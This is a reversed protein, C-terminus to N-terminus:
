AKNVEYIRAKQQRGKVQLAECETCRIHDPMRGKNARQIHDYTAQSIIIQGGSANEELRKCLNITDGIASFERRNLSGVNGLTAEGTHIGIRYFHPEPKIGLEAYFAMFAERIGLAAEVARQAHDAMPNLQTNFLAMVVNGMYKDVVGKHAHISGTARSHYQNLQQMVEQPRYDAPFSKISRVDAFVCTVERKEGGLALQSITDINDVMEPPLYRRMMALTEESAKQETTDDIVVAVGSIGDPETRLPSFKINLAIRGREPIELEAEVAQNDERNRVTILHTDLDASVGPLAATLRQGIAAAASKNLIKEAARNFLTIIHKADTTMVGSGISAFVNDMLNKTESIEKLSAQIAEYLRANEIAVAAQNAFATLLYRERETFVGARLRNDVYVVGIVDNRYKLPVCLVSRLAMRAISVGSQLRDDKYANDALLPKRTTLVERLVTHSIEPEASGGQKPTIESERVVKFEYEGSDPNRLIIYGREANTLDIVVDMARLLVVDMDLASNIMAATEVLFRLQGLETQESLLDGEFAELQQNLQTVAKLAMPPLNMGRTKLIERQSRLSAETEEILSKIKRLDQMVSQIPSQEDPM